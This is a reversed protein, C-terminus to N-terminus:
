VLRDGLGIVSAIPQCALWVPKQSYTFVMAVQM